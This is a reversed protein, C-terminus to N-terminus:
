DGNIYCQLIFTVQEICATKCATKNIHQTMRPQSIARYLQSHCYQTSIEIELKKDM